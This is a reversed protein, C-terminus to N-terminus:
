ATTTCSTSDSSTRRTLLIQIEGFTSHSTKTITTSVPTSILLSFRRTAALSKGHKTLTLRRFATPRRSIQTLLQPFSTQQLQLSTQALVQPKAVAAAEVAAVVTM